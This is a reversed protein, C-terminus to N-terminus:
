VNTLFLAQFATLYDKPSVANIVWDESGGFLLDRARNTRSRRIKSINILYQKGSRFFRPNDALAEEIAGLEYHLFYPLGEDTVLLTDFGRKKQDFSTSFYCVSEVPIFVLTGDQDSDDHCPILKVQPDLARLHALVEDWVKKTSM